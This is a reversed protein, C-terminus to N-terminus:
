KKNGKNFNAKFATQLCGFTMPLTEPLMAGQEGRAKAEIRERKGETPQTRMVRDNEETFECRIIFDMAAHLTARASRPLATSVRHRGTAVDKSGMREMIEERKEHGIFVACMPLSRLKAIMNTWERDVARWGRGWDGDAVDVWGNSDCVHSACLSYAVDVTDLVVTKYSHKENQLADLVLKMDQWSGVNVSAAHMASTGPETSIFLPSPFQNGLTTKGVGPEGYFHWVYDAMRSSPPTAEKPLIGM